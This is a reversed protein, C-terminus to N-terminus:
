VKNTNYGTYAKSLQLAKYHIIELALFILSVSLLFLLVSFILFVQGATLIMIEVAGTSPIKNGQWNLSLRDYQGREFTKAVALRFIPTLPSNKTIEVAFYKSRTAGFTKLNPFKHPNAKYAGRLMGEMAHLIIQGEDLMEVGAMVNPVVYKGREKEVENWYKVFDTDGQAAPLQFYADNGDQIMIKWSPFVKLADRITNFPLTIESVFFM